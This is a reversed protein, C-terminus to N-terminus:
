TAPTGPAEGPVTLPDPGPGTTRAGDIRERAREITQRAADITGRSAAIMHATHEIRRDTLHRHVSRLQTLQGELVHREPNAEPLEDLVREAERWVDLLEEILVAM